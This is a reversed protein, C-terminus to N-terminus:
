GHHKAGIAVLRMFEDERAREDQTRTDPQLIIFADGMEEAIKKDEKSATGDLIRKRLAVLAIFTTESGLDSFLALFQWWHLNATQLDIGHTQRFAAYILKADKSFSYVRPGTVAEGVEGGNLFLVAQDFAARDDDPMELYLNSLLIVQKEYATLTEDEFALIALLCARYHFDVPYSVGNIAIERPLNATLINNM